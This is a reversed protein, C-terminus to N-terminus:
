VFEDWPGLAGDTVAAALAEAVRQEYGREASVNLYDTCIADREREGTGRPELRRFPIGPRHWHQRSLLPALGVRRDGDRCLAAGVAGGRPPSTRGRSVAQGARGPSRARPVGGVGNGALLVDCDGGQLCQPGSAGAVRDALGGGDCLGFGRNHSPPFLSGVAPFS